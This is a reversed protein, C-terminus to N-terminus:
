KMVGKCGDWLRISAIHLQSKVEASSGVLEESNESNGEERHDNRPCKLKECDLAIRLAPMPTRVVGQGTLRQTHGGAAEEFSLPDFRGRGLLLSM